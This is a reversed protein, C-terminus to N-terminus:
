QGDMMITVREDESEQVLISSEVEDVMLTDRAELSIGVFVVAHEESEGELWPM